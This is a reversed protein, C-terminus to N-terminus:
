VDEKEKRLRRQRAEKWVVLNAIGAFLSVIFIPLPGAPGLLQTAVATLILSLLFNVLAAKPYRYHEILRRYWRQTEWAGENLAAKTALLDFVRALMTVLIATSPSTIEHM